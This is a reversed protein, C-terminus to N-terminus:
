NQVKSFFISVYEPMTNKGFDIIVTSTQQETKKNYLREVSQLPFPLGTTSFNQLETKITENSVDKPVGFIVGRNDTLYKPLEPKIPVGCISTLKLAKSRQDINSFKLLLNGGNIFKMSEINGIQKRVENSLTLKNVSSLKKESECYFITVLENEPSPKAQMIDPGQGVGSHTQPCVDKPKRRHNVSIWSEDDM